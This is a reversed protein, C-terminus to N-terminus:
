STTCWFAVISLCITWVRDEIQKLTHQTVQNNSMLVPYTVLWQFFLEEILYFQLMGKSNGSSSHLIQAVCWATHMKIFIYCRNGWSSDFWAHAFVFIFLVIVPYDRNKLGTACRRILWNYIILHSSVKRVNM